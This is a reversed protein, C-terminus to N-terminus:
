NALAFFYSTNKDGEKVDRDRARQRASIEEV